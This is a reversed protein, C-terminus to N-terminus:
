SNMTHPEEGQFGALPGRLGRGEHSDGGPSHGLGGGGEM